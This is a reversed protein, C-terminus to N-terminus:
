AATSHLIEHESVQAGTLEAVIRGRHLCIVRDCIAALEDAEAALV